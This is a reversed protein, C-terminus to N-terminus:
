GLNPVPLRQDIQEMSNICKKKAGKKMESISMNQLFAMKMQIENENNGREWSSRKARKHSLRSKLM